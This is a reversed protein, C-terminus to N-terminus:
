EVLRDHKGRETTKILEALAAARIRLEQIEADAVLTHSNHDLGAIARGVGSREINISVEDGDAVKAKKSPAAVILGSELWLAAGLLIWQNAHHESV